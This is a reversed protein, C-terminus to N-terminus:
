PSDKKAALVVAIAQLADANVKLADSLSQHLGVGSVAIALAELGAPGDADGVSICAVKCAVARLGSLLVASQLLGDATAGDALGAARIEALVETLRTEMFVM